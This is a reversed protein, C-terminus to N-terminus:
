GEVEDTAPAEAAEEVATEVVAAEVVADEIVADPAFLALWDDKRKAKVAAISRKSAARAPHDESM